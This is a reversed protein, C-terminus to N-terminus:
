FSLVAMGVELFRELTTEQSAFQSINLYFASLLKDIM